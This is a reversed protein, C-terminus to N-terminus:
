PKPMATSSIMKGGEWVEEHDIAGTEKRFVIRGEYVNNLYDGEVKIVTGTLREKYMIGINQDEKSSPIKEFTGIDYYERFPGELKGNVYSCSRKPIGSEYFEEIEKNIFVQKVIKGKNYFIAMEQLGNPLFSEWIKDFEGEFYAGKMQVSGNEFYTKSPGHKLGKVYTCELILKGKENRQEFPGNLIGNEYQSLSVLVGSELYLKVFGHKRGGLYNEETSLKGNPFYMKWLGEKDRRWKENVVRGIYRGEAMLVGDSYFMKVDNITSDAVHDVESMLRGEDDYFNWKGIPVGHEYQGKYYLIEPNKKYQRIWVGHRKGAVDLANFDKGPTGQPLSQPQAWLESSILFVVLLAFTRFKFISM